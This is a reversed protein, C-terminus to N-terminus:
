VQITLDRHRLRLLRIVLHDIEGHRRAARAARLAQIRTAPPKVQAPTRPAAVNTTAVRRWRLVGGAMRGADPMRDDLAELRAFVPVPVVRGFLIQLTWGQRRRVMVREILWHRSRVTAHWTVPFPLEM